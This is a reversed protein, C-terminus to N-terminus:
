YVKEKLFNEVIRLSDEEREFMGMHGTQALIHVDHNKPLFCQEKTKELPVAGDEDGAVFLIPRNFNKLVHIREKRDRMALTYATLSKLPTQKCIRIAEEIQESLAERRKRYFLDPVFSQIFNEVGHKEVFEITRNRVKKKEETDAFATSNFLGFGQLMQPYAEAFALTVYGGLSHGIMVCEEIELSKLLDQIKEAITELTFNEQPLESKGFGPLDVNLVRFQYSLKDEFAHWIEHTECFGHLLVVPLGQGQDTYFLDKMIILSHAISHINKQLCIYLIRPLSQVM